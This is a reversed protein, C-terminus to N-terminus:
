NNQLKRVNERHYPSDIVENVVSFSNGDRDFFDFFKMGGFDDIESTVVGNEHFHKYAADIDDVLFNYYSNKNKGKITFETPQPSEVQILAMQTPSNPFYFGAGEEWEDIKKVGLNTEYWITSQKLDTVPIFIGGVKFM